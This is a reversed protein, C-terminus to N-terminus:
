QSVNKFRRIVRYGIWKCRYPLMNRVRKALSPKKIGYKKALYKVSVNEKYEDFFLRRNEANGETTKYFLPNYVYIANMPVSHLDMRKQLYPMVSTGHANNLVLTSYNRYDDLEPLVKEKFNFDGLTIDGQRNGNRFKCNEGCSLRLCVQNLFLRNYMDLYVDKKSGDEFFYRSNYRAFSGMMPKKYRFMYGCIGKGYIQGMEKLCREFVGPSGVGHCILDICFLKEYNKGLFRRLGYVQCPTGSFVVYGGKQLEEKIESYCNGINSQVYKSKKFKEIEELQKTCYHFTKVGNITAGCYMVETGNALENVANCIEAFAGGSTSTLWNEYDKSVGAWAQQEKDAVGEVEKKGLICVADCLGCQVCEARNIVPQEFGEEDEGLNICKSPCIAACAGCGTCLSKDSYEKEQM